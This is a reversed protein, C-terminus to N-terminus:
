GFLEVRGRETISYRYPRTERRRLYGEESMKKVLRAVHERSQGLSAQIERATKPGNEVVKLVELTVSEFRASKPAGRRGLEMMDLRIRVRIVEEELRQINQHHQGGKGWLLYSTALSGVFVSFGSVMLWLSVGEMM